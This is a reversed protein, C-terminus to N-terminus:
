MRDSSALNTMSVREARKTVWHVQIALWSIGVEGDLELESVLRKEMSGM